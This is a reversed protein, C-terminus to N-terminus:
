KSEVEEILKGITENETHFNADELASYTTKLIALGDWAFFRSILLGMAEEDSATYEEVFSDKKIKDLISRIQRTENAEM